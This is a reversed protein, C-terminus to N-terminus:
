TARLVGGDIRMVLGTTFDSRPSALFATAAAIEEVRGLRRVPQDVWETYRREAEAFDGEWGQQAKVTEIWRAAQPTMVTGPAIANVTVGKPALSRSLNGTLHDLAAKVSGYELLRGSLQRGGVSSIAIIRGWGREVMGPALLKALRVISVVNLDFSEHWEQSSVEAWDPNGTTVVGGASCVLIDIGGLAELATRAIAECDADSSVPGLAIASRVGAAAVDDAVAQARERDRGHVVVAAGEAALERAIQAGIGSSAGTVLARKGALKLDM